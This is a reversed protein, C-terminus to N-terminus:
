KKKIMRCAGYYEYATLLYDIKTTTVKYEGMKYTTIENSNQKMAQSLENLQIENFICGKLDIWKNEGNKPYSNYQVKYQCYNGNKGLITYRYTSEWNDFYSNICNEFNYIFIPNYEQPIYFKRNKAYGMAGFAWVAGSTILFAIVLILARRNIDVGKNYPCGM